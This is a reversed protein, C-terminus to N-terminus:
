RSAGPPPVPGGQAWRICLQVRPPVMCCLRTSIPLHIAGAQTHSCRSVTHRPAGRRLTGFRDAQVPHLTPWVPPKKNAPSVVPLKAATSCAHQLSACPDPYLCTHTNKEAPLFISHSESLLRCPPKVPWCRPRRAQRSASSPRLSSVCIPIPPCVPHCWLLPTVRTLLASGQLWPLVMGRKVHMFVDITIKEHNHIHQFLAMRRYERLACGRVARNTSRSIHPSYYM